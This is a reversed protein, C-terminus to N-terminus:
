SRLMRSMASTHRRPLTTPEQSSSRVAMASASFGSSEVKVPATCSEPSPRQVMTAASSSATGASTSEAESYVRKRERLPWVKASFTREAIRLLNPPWTSRGAPPYRVSHRRQFRICDFAVRGAGAQHHDEAGGPVQGLALQNRSQVIQRAAVVQGVLEGHDAEGEVGHGGFLEALGDGFFHAVKGFRGDLRVGPVGEDLAEVVHLPVELVGGGVLAQPVENGLDAAM